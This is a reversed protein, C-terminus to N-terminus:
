IGNRAKQEAKPVLELCTLARNVQDEQNQSYTVYKREEEGLKIVEDHAVVLGRIVCSM